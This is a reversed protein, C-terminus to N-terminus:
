RIANFFLFVAGVHFNDPFIQIYLYLSIVKYLM